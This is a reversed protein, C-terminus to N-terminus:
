PSRSLGNERARDAPERRLAHRRHARVQPRGRRRHGGRGRGRDGRAQERADPAPARDAGEEAADLQLRAHGVDLTGAYVRLFTLQGVFPDNMLKFALATFPEADSALRTEPEMTEPNIGQMPPIDLPSPLYDVVADLLPQVGKNKFSAGCIVPVHKMALTGVRVAARLDAPELKKDELYQEMLKEDVESLADLLHERYERVQAAYEAPIPVREFDQGLRVDDEPWVLAVEEILDIIGRFGDEAGLPLQLVVPTVGLRSRIMELSRFFDAGTRDM